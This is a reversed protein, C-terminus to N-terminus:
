KNLPIMMYIQETQHLIFIQDMPVNVAPEYLLAKRNYDM